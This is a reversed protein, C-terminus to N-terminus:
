QRRGRDSTFFVSSQDLDSHVVVPGALLREHEIAVIGPKVQLAQSDAFGTVHSIRGAVDRVDRARLFAELDLYGALGHDKTVRAEAIRTEVICM